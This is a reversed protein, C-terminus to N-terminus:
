DLGWATDGVAIAERHILRTVQDYLDTAPWTEACDLADAIAVASLQITFVERALSQAVDPDLHCWRSEIQRGYRALDALIREASGAAWAPQHMRISCDVTWASDLLQDVTVAASGSLTTPATGTAAM